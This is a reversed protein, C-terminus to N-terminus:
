KDEKKLGIIIPECDDPDRLEAVMINESSIVVSTNKLNASWWFDDDAVNLMQYRFRGTFEKGPTGGYLDYIELKSGEEDLWNGDEDVKAYYWEAHYDVEQIAFVKLRKAEAALMEIRAALDADIEVAMVDPVDGCFEDTWSVRRTFKM